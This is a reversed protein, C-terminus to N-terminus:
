PNSRILKVADDLEDGTISTFEELFNIKSFINEMYHKNEM